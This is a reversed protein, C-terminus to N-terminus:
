SGVAAHPGARVLAPPGALHPTYHQETRVGVCSPHLFAAAAGACEMKAADMSVARVRSAAPAPANLVYGLPSILSALMASNTSSLSIRAACKEKKEHFRPIFM